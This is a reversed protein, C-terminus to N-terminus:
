ARAASSTIRALPVMQMPHAPAARISDLVHGQQTRAVVHGHVTAIGREVVPFQREDEGVVALGELVVVVQLERRSAKSGPSSKDAHM